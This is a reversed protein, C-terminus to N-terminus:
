AQRALDVRRRKEKDLEPPNARSTMPRFELFAFLAKGSKQRISTPGSRGAEAKREQRAVPAQPELDYAKFGLFAFFAKRDKM